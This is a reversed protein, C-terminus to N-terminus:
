HKSYPPTPANYAHRIHSSLVRLAESHHVASPQVASLQVASLNVIDRNYPLAIFLYTLPRAIYVCVIDHKSIIIADVPLYYVAM